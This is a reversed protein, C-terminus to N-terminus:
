RGRRVWTLGYDTSVYLHTGSGQEGFVRAWLVRGHATVLNVGAGFWSQYWHAGGDHTVRIANGGQGWFYAYNPPAAGVSGVAAAGQAAAYWFLPGDIRWTRGGDTSIAPYAESSLNGQNALAFHIQATAPTKESLETASVVTGPALWAVGGSPANTVLPKAKIVSPLLASTKAAPSPTPPASAGVIHVSALLAMTQSMANASGPDRFCGDLEYWNDTLQPEIIVRIEQTAGLQGCIGPGSTVIKAPTGDVTISQGPQNAFRWGPMGNAMWKLVVGGPSLQYIPWASCSTRTGGSIPYSVCPAHMPQNSLYVLSAGYSWTVYAFRSDAKWSSPYSFRIPPSTWNSTQAQPTPSSSPEPFLQVVNGLSSLDEPAGCCGWDTVKLDMSTVFMMSAGGQPSASASPSSCRACAFNGTLQVAYVPESPSRTYDRWAGLAEVRGRTTAVAVISSPNPDGNQKAYSMAKALLASQADSPIISSAPALLQVPLAGGDLVAAMERARSQDLNAAIVGSGSTISTQVTPAALVSRDLVLAVQHGIDKQTAQALLTKGAETTRFDVTWGGASPGGTEQYVAKAGAIDANSLQAPGLVYKATGDQSLYTVQRTALSSDSCSPLLPNSTGCTVPHARWETPQSKTIILPSGSSSYVVPRMEFTGEATLLSIVQQESYTTSTGAPWSVDIETPPVYTAQAGQMGLSSLRRELVSTADRMTSASTGSPAFLSTAPIGRGLGMRSNKAIPGFARWLFVGALVCIAAVGAVVLIRERVSPEAPAQRLGDGREVRAWLDPAEMRDAVGFREKLDIM